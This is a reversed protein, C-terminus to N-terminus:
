FSQGFEPPFVRGSHPRAAGEGSAPDQISYCPSALSLVLMRPIQRSGSRLHWM